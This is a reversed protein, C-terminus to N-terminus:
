FIYVLNLLILIIFLYLNIINVKLVLILKLEKKNFLKLEYKTSFPFIKKMIRKQLKYHRKLPIHNGGTNLVFLPAFKKIKNLSEISIYKYPISHIKKHKINLQYLNVLHQQSLRLIYRQKSLLTENIYKYKQIQQFIKNLDDINLSIANHTHETKLLSINYNEIFFKETCLISLSFGKGSHPNILDKMKFLKYYKQLVETKNIEKVKLSM